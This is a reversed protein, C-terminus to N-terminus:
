IGVIRDNVYVPVQSYGREFMMKAVSSLDENSHVKLLGENRTAIDSAIMNPPISSLKSLLCDMLLKAEDYRLERVSRLIRSIVPQSIGTEDALKQESLGTERMLSRIIEILRDKSSLMGVLM